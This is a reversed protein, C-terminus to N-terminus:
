PSPFLVPTAGLHREIAQRNRDIAQKMAEGALTRLNVHKFTHNGILHGREVISALVAANALAEGKKGDFRRGVVFFTAPVDYRDLADLVAPTTKHSPGDDFTFAVYGPAENGRIRRGAALPDAEAAAAPGSTGTATSATSAASPPQAAAPAPTAAWAVALAVAIAPAAPVPVVVSPRLGSM